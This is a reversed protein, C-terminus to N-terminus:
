IECVELISEEEAMKVPLLSYEHPEAHRLIHKVGNNKDTSGVAKDKNYLSGGERFFEAM